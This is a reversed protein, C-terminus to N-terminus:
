AARETILSKNASNLILQQWKEARQMEFEESLHDAIDYFNLIVNPRKSNFMLELELRQLESEMKKERKFDRTDKHILCSKLDNLNINYVITDSPKTKIFVLNHKTEDIGIFNHNWYDKKQFSMQEKKLVDNIAKKSKNSEKKGIYTFWIFPLISLIVIITTIVSESIKM